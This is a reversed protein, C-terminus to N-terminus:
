SPKLNFHTEVRTVRRDIKNVRFHLDSEVHRISKTIEGLRSYLKNGMWGLMMVIVAFLVTVLSLLMTILQTQDM